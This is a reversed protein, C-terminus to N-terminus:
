YKNQQSIRCPTYFEKQAQGKTLGTMIKTSAPIWTGMMSNYRHLFSFLTCFKANYVMLNTVVRLKGWVNYFCVNRAQESTSQYLWYSRDSSSGHSVLLWYYNSSSYGGFHWFLNWFWSTVQVCLGMVFYVLISHGIVFFFFLLLFPLQLCPGLLLKSNIVFICEKLLWKWEDYYNRYTTCDDSM